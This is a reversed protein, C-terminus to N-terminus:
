AQKQISEKQGYDARRFYRRAGHKVQRTKGSVIMVNRCFEMFKPSCPIRMEEALFKYWEGARVKGTHDAFREFHQDIADEIIVQKLITTNSM